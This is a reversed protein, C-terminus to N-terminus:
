VNIKNDNKMGLYVILIHYIDITKKKIVRYLPQYFLFFKAKNIKDGFM